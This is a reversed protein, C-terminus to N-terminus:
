VNAFSPIFQFCKVHDDNPGLASITDVTKSAMKYQVVQKDLEMVLVCDEEREGLLICFVRPYENRRKPFPKIIDDLYVIYKVSWESHVNSKEFITFHQSCNNQMCFLLLCGRSEFLRREFHVKLDLTLPTQLSTFVPYENMIDLKFIDYSYHNTWYIADNWYVGYGFFEFSLRPFHHGCLSWNGTESSYTHMQVWRDLPHDGTMLEGYVVKYHPSKTPDFAMRLGGSIAFDNFTVNDPEPILKFMNTVSPNYAYFKGSLTSHCLLLGNCSQLIRVDGHVHTFSTALLPIRIDFSVFDYSHSGKSYSCKQLFLGFLPDLNRRLTLNAAYDIILSNWRKSVSKFLVLSVVPLRVLIETLLDNNSIVLEVSRSSEPGAM